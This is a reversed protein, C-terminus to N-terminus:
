LRLTVNEVYKKLTEAFDAISDPPYPKVTVYTKDLTDDPVFQQFTFTKGGKVLEGIRSVDESDVFGPVVTARFEYDVEGSRLIEISRELEMPDAAGLRKYKDLSTKVDLAVYDVHQLCEKLMGSNLGNTDLKVAFGNEKLKELFRPLEKHITPEGGTVVVADVFRKREKLIQLAAEETLFPPRPDIVIRWNQCFPCRLNCGPTFLVSSVCKPFDILSTKQIGSFKM